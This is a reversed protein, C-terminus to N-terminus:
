STWTQLGGSARCLRLSRSFRSISVGLPACTRSAAMVPMSPTPSGVSGIVWPPTAKMSAGTSPSAAECSVNSTM